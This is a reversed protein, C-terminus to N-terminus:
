KNIYEKIGRYLYKYHDLISIGKTLGAALAGVAFSIYGILFHDDAKIAFYMLYLGALFTTALGFGYLIQNRNVRKIDLDLQKSINEKSYLSSLDEAIDEINKDTQKKWKGFWGKFAKDNILCEINIM